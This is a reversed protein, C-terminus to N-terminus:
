TDGGFRYYILVNVVCLLLFNDFDEGQLINAVSLNDFYNPVFSICYGTIDM